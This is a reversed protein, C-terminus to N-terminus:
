DIYKSLTIRMGIRFHTEFDFNVYSKLRLFYMFLYIFSANNFVIGYIEETINKKSNQLEYVM